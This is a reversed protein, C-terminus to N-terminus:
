QKRGLNEYYDLSKQGADPSGRTRNELWEPEFGQWGSAIMADAAANPDPCKAFKDALLKAAHPTLKAKKAKRHDIVGDARKEDLVRLLEERATPARDKARQAAPAEVTRPGPGLDLTSPGLDPALADASRAVERSDERFEPLRSPRPHDVKQHQKWHPIDLYTKGEIAYLRICGEAALESLWGQILKPADDDYPYLLSALMRSAARARGEDDVITWVQIFLLRADRSLRGITESQPFEPKITRIRAM